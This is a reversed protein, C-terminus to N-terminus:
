ILRFAVGEWNLVALLCLVRIVCTSFCRTVSCRWNLISFDVKGELPKHCLWVNKIQVRRRHWQPPPRRGIWVSFDLIIGDVVCVTQHRRQWAILSTVVKFIELRESKVMVDGFHTRLASTSSTVHQFHLRRRCCRLCTSWYWEGMNTHCRIIKVIQDGTKGANATHRNSNKRVCSFGQQM